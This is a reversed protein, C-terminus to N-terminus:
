KSLVTGKNKLPVNMKFINLSYRKHAVCQFGSFGKDMTGAFTLTNISYYRPSYITLKKMEQADKMTCRYVMRSLINLESFLISVAILNRPNLIQLSQILLARNSIITIIIVVRTITQYSVSLHCYTRLDMSILVPLSISSLPQHKYFM